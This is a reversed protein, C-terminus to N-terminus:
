VANLREFERRATEHDFFAEFRAIKAGDFTFIAAGRQELQVGARGRFRDRSLVLVRNGHEVMEEPTSRHSEWMDFWVDWSDRLGERGRFFQAGEPQFAPQTFDVDVDFLHLLEDTVPSARRAAADMPLRNFLEFVRKATDVQSSM